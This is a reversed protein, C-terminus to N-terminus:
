TVALGRGPGDRPKSPSPSMFTLTKPQLPASLERGSAGAADGGRHDVWCHHAEAQLVGLADDVAGVGAADRQELDEFLYRLLERAAPAKHQRCPHTGPGQSSLSYRHETM